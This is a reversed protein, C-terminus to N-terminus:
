IILAFKKNVLKNFAASVAFHPFDKALNTNMNCSAAELVSRDCDICHWARYM